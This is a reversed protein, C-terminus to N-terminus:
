QDPFQVSDLMQQFAAEYAAFEKQPAVFVFYVLGEPRLIAVLWDTESGGVPSENGLMKSLATRGGVRIRNQQDTVRMNPNSNVLTRILQDTAEKLSMSSRDGYDPSFTEVVAGYALASASGSAIIGNDPAVMFGKDGQYIKWNDPFQFSLTDGSYSQLQDSPPPPKQIKGTGSAPAQAEKVKPAPPLSKLYQRISRFEGNDNIARDSIAGLKAIEANINKIRNEPNPHSSFFDTGGRSELKSFFQAV